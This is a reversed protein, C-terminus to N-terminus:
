FEGDPDWTMGSIDIGDDSRHMRRSLGGMSWINSGRSVGVENEFTAMISDVTRFLMSSSPDTSEQGSRINTATTSDGTDSVGNMPTSPSTTTTSTTTSTSADRTSIRPPGNDIYVEANSRTASANTSSGRRNNSWDPLLARDLPSRNSGSNGIDRYRRANSWPRSTNAANSASVSRAVTAFRAPSTSELLAQGAASPSSHDERPRYDTDLVNHSGEYDCAAGDRNRGSGMSPVKVRQTTTFTTTEVVHFYNTHESFALLDGRPSWKVVRASGSQRVDTTTQSTSLSAIKSASRVDWISIIGDQSAVAFRLGDPSWATSFSADSSATYVCIKSLDGTIPDVSYLFVDPTDGVCVLHRGNPSFSSHNICTPFEVTQLRSLGYWKSDLKEDNSNAISASGAAASSNAGRRIPPRLRFEKVSQDNNSVLVRLSGAEHHSLHHHHPHHRHHTPYGDQFVETETARKKEERRRRKEEESAEAGLQNDELLAEMRQLSLLMDNGKSSTPTRGADFRGSPDDRMWASSADNGDGLADAIERRRKERHRCADRKDADAMIGHNQLQLSSTSARVM